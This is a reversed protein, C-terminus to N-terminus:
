GGGGEIGLGGAVCPWKQIDEILGRFSTHEARKKEETEPSIGKQHVVGDKKKKRLMERKRNQKTKTGGVRKV